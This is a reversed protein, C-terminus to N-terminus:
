ELEMAEIENEFCERFRDFGGAPFLEDLRWRASVAHRTFYIAVEEVPGPCM